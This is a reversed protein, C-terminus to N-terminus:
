AKLRRGGLLGQPRLILVGVFVGYLLISRLNASTLAVGYTQVFGLALGALMGGELNGLGGLIVVVFAAITLPFGMFPSIPESMSVLGGALGACAFGLVLAVLQVRGIDIGVIAAATRHGILAKIALGYVSVRLFGAIVLSAGGAVILSFLRNETMAVGGMHLVTDLYQYARPSGTFLLAALNQLIISVGFFVLLSNAEVRGGSVDRSLQGALLLRYALWGFLATAGAAAILGLPPALGLGVFTWYVIYSGIMALDGHAVNLLRMTGYVLNLGIGLLAYLSGIVLASFLLQGSALLNVV